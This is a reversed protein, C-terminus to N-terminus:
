PLVKVASVPAFSFHFPYNAVQYASDNCAWAVNLDTTDIRCLLQCVNSHPLLQQPPTRAGITRRSKPPRAVFWTGKRSAPEGSAESWYEITDLLEGACLCSGVLEARTELVHHLLGVVSRRQEPTCGM